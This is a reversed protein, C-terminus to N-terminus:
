YFSCLQLVHGEGKIQVKLSCATTVSLLVSRLNGLETILFHMQLEVSQPVNFICENVKITNIKAGAM